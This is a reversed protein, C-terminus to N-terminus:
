RIATVVNQYVNINTFGANQLAPIIQNNIVELSRTGLINLMVKGGSDMQGAWQSNEVQGLEDTIIRPTGLHDTTTYATKAQEAAAVVTSYEAILKGASHVFVITESDTVKKTRKGEGDYYYRGITVGDRKVESQKNDGNFIFQRGLSTIPDVDSVVNGNKDYGFDTSTFRNTNEDVAPTTNLTIAGIAQDIATRRAILKSNKRLLYRLEN